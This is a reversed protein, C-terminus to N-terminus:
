KRGKPKKRPKQIAEARVAEDLMAKTVAKAPRDSAQRIARKQKDARVGGQDRERLIRLQEIKSM